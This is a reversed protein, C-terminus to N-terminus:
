AQALSEREAYLCASVDHRASFTIQLNGGNTEINMTTQDGNQCIVENGHKGRFGKCLEESDFPGLGMNQLNARISELAAAVDPGLSIGPKRDPTIPFGLTLAVVPLVSLINRLKM